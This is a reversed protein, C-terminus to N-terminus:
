GRLEKEIESRSARAEKEQLVERIDDCVPKDACASCNQSCDIDFGRIKWTERVIERTIKQVQASIDGLWKVDEKGSTVFIVEMAGIKPNATKYLVMLAKGLSEFCFGKGASDKSVRSWINRPLSRMQYGEIMDGVIGARQLAEYDSNELGEGGVIVIQGFPLSQGGIKDMDPGILTIRGDNVLEVQDTFLSIAASGAEPNGLEVYTDGRLIIGINAGPGVAVPLNNRLESVPVRWENVARGAVQMHSVYEHMKEIYADFLM